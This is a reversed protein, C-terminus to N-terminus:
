KKIYKEDAWSCDNDDVYYDIGIIKIGAKDLAALYEDTMLSVESEQWKKSALVKEPLKPKQHSQSVLRLNNTHQLM